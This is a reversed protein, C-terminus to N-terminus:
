GNRCRNPRTRLGLTGAWRNRDEPSAHVRRGVHTVANRIKGLTRCSLNASGIVVRIVLRSAFSRLSRTKATRGPAAM